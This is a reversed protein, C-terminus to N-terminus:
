SDLSITGWTCHIHIVDASHIERFNTGWSFLAMWLILCLVYIILITHTSIKAPNM